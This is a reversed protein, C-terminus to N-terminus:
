DKPLEITFTRLRGDTEPNPDLYIKGGHYEVLEKAIYLGLGKGKRRTSYYPTFIQNANKPDIGPGNDSYIITYAKSDIEITIQRQNDGPRLDQKLWYISNSMLNELAQAILGKVMNVIFPKSSIGQDLIISCIIEHRDLRAKYGTVVTQVQKVADYEEKRHRGSPSMADVTRIRKNTAKIQSQLNDIISVMGSQTGGGKKLELLLEGTKETLRSLEHIVIEVVLGINALELLEVKTEKAMTLATKITKIYEVQEHLSEKIAAFKQKESTPISITKTIEDLTRITSKLSDQSKKLSAETSDEAIAVKVEADFIVSIHMKLDTLIVDGFIDKLLNQEPCSILKERNAADILCPNNRSSISISGITQYRNLSYGQSKLTASDWELWDDEMGGTQGVRFGDRYISFGGCWLNLEDIIQKRSHEISADIRQRNFWLCKGQIPGLKRFVEEAIALKSTLEKLNWSRIEPSTSGKWTIMRRLVQDSGEIGNPDFIITAEFQAKQSLWPPLSRIVQRSGNMVIDIPYPKLEKSFPNQLRRIYKDIFGQVKSESWNATLNKILISTGHVNSDDLDGDLVPIDIDDLFLEPNEFLGWDFNIKNWGNSDSQKSKVTAQKGLRMMSLRGVGKEGLLSLSKDNKKALFKNPTGIVLFCNILESQSMGIGTDSIEIFFEETRLHNLFGILAERSIANENFQALLNSRQELTLQSNLCDSFENRAQEKSIKENQLKEEILQMIASDAPAYIFVKVRPSNADFANKILENLAVDDSTILEAGLQRLARAAIRFGNAM